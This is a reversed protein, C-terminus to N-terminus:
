DDLVIQSEGAELGAVYGFGGRCQLLSDGGLSWGSGSTAVGASWEASPAGDGPESAVVSGGDPRRSGM